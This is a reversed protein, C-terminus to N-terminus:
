LYARPFAVARLGMWGWLAMVFAIEALVCDYDGTDSIMPM